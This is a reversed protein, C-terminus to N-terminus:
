YCTRNQVKIDDVSRICNVERFIVVACTVLRCHSDVVTENLDVNVRVIM